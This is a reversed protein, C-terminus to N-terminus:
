FLKTILFVKRVDKQLMLWLCIVAGIGFSFSMISGTTLVPLSMFKIALALKTILEFVLVALFILIFLYNTEDRKYLLSYQVYCWGLINILAMLIAEFTIGELLFYFPFTFLSYFLYLFGFYRVFRLKKSTKIDETNM